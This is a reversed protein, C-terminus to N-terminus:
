FFSHIGPALKQANAQLRQEPKIRGPTRNIDFLVLQGDRIVFDMKGYDLGLQRRLAIIEEPVPIEERTVISKMKVIPERSGLLACYGRDGFFQYIRLRYLGDSKEPLFKEVVLAPNEFAAAPVEKLSPFVKYDAAAICHLKAWDTEKPTAERAFLKWWSKKPAKSLTGNRRAEPVGGCNLNTKVLVPGDYSDTPVLLNRSIRRKSIDLVGRNVVRPFRDFFAAYDPPITTLDIHPILLDAEVAKEIGKLVKIELGEQEWIRAMAWIFYGQRRPYRDDESLLIAISRRAPM